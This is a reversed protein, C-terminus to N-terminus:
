LFADWFLFLLLVEISSSFSIWFTRCCRLLRYHDSSVCPQYIINITKWFMNWIRKSNQFIEGPHYECVNVKDMKNKNFKKMDTSNNYKIIFLQPMKLINRLDLFWFEWVCLRFYRVLLCLKFFHFFFEQFLLNFGFPFSIM